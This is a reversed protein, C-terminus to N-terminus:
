LFKRKFPNRAVCYIKCWTTVFKSKGEGKCNGIVPDMETFATLKDSFEFSLASDRAFTKHYRRHSVISGTWMIM